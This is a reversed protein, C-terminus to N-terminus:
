IEKFKLEKYRASLINFKINYLINSVINKVIAGALEIELKLIIFRLERYSVCNLLINLSSISNAILM